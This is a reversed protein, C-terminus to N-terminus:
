IESVLKYLLRVFKNLLIKVCHLLLVISERHEHKMYPCDTFEHAREILNTKTQGLFTSNLSNILQRKNILLLDRSTLIDSNSGAAAAAQFDYGNEKNNENNAGKSNNNWIWCSSSDEVGASSARFKPTANSPRNSFQNSYQQGVLTADLAEILCRQSAVVRFPAM